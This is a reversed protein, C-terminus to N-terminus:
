QCMKGLARARCYCQMLLPVEKQTAIYSIAAYTLAIKYEVLNCLFMHSILKYLFFKM